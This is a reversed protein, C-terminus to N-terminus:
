GLLADIQDFLYRGFPMACTFGPSVANLVHFSGRDGEYRFDTELRHNRLNVLQARVGPPGWRRYHKEDVATALVGAQRVMERRRYKQMEQWALQRFGFDNRLFLGMERWVIEMSEQWRFGSLGEYHERWFAPVATPGVKAHGDVTLTYHVGLFPNALDPVPYIHTRLAGVPEDSYLYLGKFPLIASQLGFGCMHAIRDAYLGAANILYGASVDGNTTRAVGREWGLLATGVRIDVGASRADEALAGMVEKPDVSSTTPSHIARDVTRVRPELVQAQSLSLSELEVGNAAGRRLLEEMVPLDTEQRAVVLKGCRNIRLGREQCYRTMLHNGERCFRAKLSDATYYFGAHLVGSNRGSAHKGCASEKELVVVRRKPHRRRAELALNLGVVGGGVILYDSSKEM